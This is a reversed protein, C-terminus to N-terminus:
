SGEGSRYLEFGEAGLLWLADESFQKTKQKILQDDFLIAGVPLLGERIPAEEKVRYHFVKRETQQTHEMASATKYVDHLKKQVGSQRFIKLNNSAICSLTSLELVIYFTSNDPDTRDKLIIEDIMQISRNHWIKGSRQNLFMMGIIQQATLVTLKEMGGKPKEQSRREFWCGHLYITKFFRHLFQENLLAHDSFFHYGAIWNLVRIASEEFNWWVKSAPPNAKIWRNVCNVFYEPSNSVPRIWYEKGIPFIFRFTNDINGSDIDSRIADAELTISVDSQYSSLLSLFFEKKNRTGFFFGNGDGRLYPQVYPKTINFKQTYLKWLLTQIM